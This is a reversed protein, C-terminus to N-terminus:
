QRTGGRHLSQYLTLALVIDVDIGNSALPLFIRELSVIDNLRHLKDPLGRRWSVTGALVKQLDICTQSRPFDAVEQDLYAGTQDHGRAEVIATGVLRYRFRPTPPVVDILWINPLLNPIKTPDFDSRTPLGTGSRLSDWYGFLTHIKPHRDAPYPAESPM